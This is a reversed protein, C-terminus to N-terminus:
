RGPGRGEAWTVFTFVTNGNGFNLEYVEGRGNGSERIKKGWQPRGDLEIDSM